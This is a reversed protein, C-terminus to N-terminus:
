FKRVKVGASQDLGHFFPTDLAVHDESRCIFANGQGSCNGHSHSFESVIKRKSIVTLFDLIVAFASIGDSGRNFTVDHDDIIHDRGTRRDSFGDFDNFGATSM